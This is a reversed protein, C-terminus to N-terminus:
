LIALEIKKDALYNMCLDEAEVKNRGYEGIPARAHTEKMPVDIPEGYVESSSAFVFRKAGASVAADIANKTGGVNIAIMADKPARAQPMIGVLHYVVECGKAADRLKDADRVDGQIFEVDNHLTKARAIDVGRVREGSEILRKALREGWYGSAGTILYKAM